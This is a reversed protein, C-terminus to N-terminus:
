LTNTFKDYMIEITQGITNSIIKLQNPATYIYQNQTLIIGDKNVSYIFTPEFDLTFTQNIQTAIYVQRFTSVNLRLIENEDYFFEDGITIQLDSLDQWTKDGRYYQATTGATITPEKANLATQQATSIPKNADSTNDVNSLGVQTKTVGHPNSTNAIHTDIQAHTNTGINQLATHDTVGVSIEVYVSGTWRYTKNTDLTIYIKGVEGTTPLSAFNVAEIVDDVYSPLQSSPVKGGVLDAKNSLDPLKVVWAGDKWWYEVGAINVTLYPSRIGIPIITNADAISAFAVKGNLYKFDLPEDSLVKVSNPLELSM